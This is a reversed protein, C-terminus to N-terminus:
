GGGLCSDAEEGLEVRYNHHGTSDSFLSVAKSAGRAERGSM